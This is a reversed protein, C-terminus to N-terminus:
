KMGMAIGRLCIAFRNRSLIPFTVGITDTCFKTRVDKAIADVSAYNGQARAVVAETIGVIDKDYFTINESKACETISNVVIDVLNDGERIVPARVGRVVTGVARM